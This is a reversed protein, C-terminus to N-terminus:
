GAVARSTTSSFSTRNPAAPPSLRLAPKSQRAVTKTKKRTPTKKAVAKGSKWARKGVSKSSTSEKGAVSRSSITSKGTRAVRPTMRPAPPVDIRQTEFDSNGASMPQLDSFSDGIAYREFVDPTVMQRHTVGSADRLLLGYMGDVGQSYYFPSPRSQKQVIIGQHACSTLLLALTIYRPVLLRMM